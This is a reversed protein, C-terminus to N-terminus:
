APEFVSDSSSVMGVCDRHGDIVPLHKIGCNATMAAAETLEVKTTNAPTPISHAVGAALWM